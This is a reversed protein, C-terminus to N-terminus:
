VPRLSGADADPLRLRIYIPDHGTSRVAIGVATLPPAHRHIGNLAGGEGILPFRHDPEQESPHYKDQEHFAHTHGIKKAQARVGAILEV